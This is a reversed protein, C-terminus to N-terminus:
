QQTNDKLDDLMENTIEVNKPRILFVRNGIQQLDADVAFSVGSFFDLIRKSDEDRNDELNLLVINKQLLAQAANGCDEFKSPEALYIRPKDTRGKGSFPVVNVNETREYSANDKEFDFKDMDDTLEFEDDEDYDQENGNFYNEADYHLWNKMKQVLKM